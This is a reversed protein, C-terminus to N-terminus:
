VPTSGEVLLLVAFELEAIRRVLYRDRVVDPVGATDREWEAMADAVYKRGDRIINEREIQDM